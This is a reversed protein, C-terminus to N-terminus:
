DANDDGDMITGDTGNDGEMAEDVITGVWEMIEEEIGDNGEMPADIEVGIEDPVFWEYGSKKWANSIITANDKMEAMSREVWGAVDRRTPPSTTGHIIGESIMWALWQRRIRDKFPKNFGVDVPQCLSTCGGPIHRVEVGLEEIRKVVSAMMHCQYSDLILLPFINEPANEVYPQLVDTVWTLMIDEDM